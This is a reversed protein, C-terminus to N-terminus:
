FDISYSISPLFRYLSAVRYLKYRLGDADIAFYQSEINRHGYANILSLNVTHVMPLRGGTRFRYTGSLDLRQYAPMRGSNRDAYDAILRNAILYLYRTPTYVRGSAYVFAAAVSWHDNFAYEADAKLQHGADTLSPFMERSGPLHRMARGFAYTVSGTLAGFNKHVGIDAGVNYGDTMFINAEPSYDYNIIDLVQGSYEAQSGVIKYYASASVTLDGNMFGRSWGATFDLSRQPKVAGRSAYWFNSALGIDSFGVLHLYQVFRGAGLTWTNGRFRFEASLRPDVSYERFSFTSVSLGVSFTLQRLPVFRADAFLRVEANDQRRAPASPQTVEGSLQAWLPVTRFLGAEAGVTVEPVFGRAQTLAVDGAAAVSRISARGDVDFQPMDVTLGSAFDSYWARVSARHVGTHTWSLSALTNRWNLRTTMAYNVNGAALRDTTHLLNVALNSLSDIRWAASLNLDSFRYRTTNTETNLFRGYVEDIYSTRGSATLAFRGAASTKLTLTSALLGVNVSGALPAKFDLAPMLDIVAGLRNPASAGRNYRRVSLSSFHSTNFTSFVGGFRYPFFVPAGDIRYISQYPTNGQIIVGSGYDGITSVGGSRKLAGLLDAEGLLRLGRSIGAADVRMNGDSAVRVATGGSGDVVVEHLLTATTDTPEDARAGAALLLLLLPLRRVGM